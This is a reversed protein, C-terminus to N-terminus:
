RPPPVWNFLLNVMSARTDSQSEAVLFRDNGVPAYVSDFAIGVAAGQTDKTNIRFLATASGAKFANATMTVPVSILRNDPAIYYLERGNARWEPAGGGNSSVQVADETGAFSKVFVEPRGSDTAVYAVWHGDPSFRGCCQDAEGGAFIRPKADPLLDLAWLDLRTKPDGANFLIVKGDPSWSQATKVGDTHLLL